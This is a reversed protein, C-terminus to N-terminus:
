CRVYTGGQNVSINSYNAFRFRSMLVVFRVFRAYPHNLAVINAVSSHFSHFSSHNSIDTFISSSDSSNPSTSALHLTGLPRRFLFALFLEDPIKRVPPAHARSVELCAAQQKHITECTRRTALQVIRLDKSISLVQKLPALCAFTRHAVDEARQALVVASSSSTNDPSILQASSAALAFLTLLFLRFGRYAAICDACLSPDLMVLSSKFAHERLIRIPGPPIDFSKEM